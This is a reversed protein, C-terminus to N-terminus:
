QQGWDQRSRDLSLCSLDAGAAVDGAFFAFVAVSAGASTAPAGTCVIFLGLSASCASVPTLNELALGVTSTGLATSPCSSDSTVASPSSILIWSQEHEQQDFFYARRPTILRAIPTEKLLLGGTKLRKHCKALCPYLTMTDKTQTSKPIQVRAVENGPMVM